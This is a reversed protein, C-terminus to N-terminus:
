YPQGGPLKAKPPEALSEKVGKEVDQSLEKRRRQEEERQLYWRARAEDQENLGYSINGAGGRGQKGVAGSGTSSGAARPAASYSHPQEGGAAGAEAPEATGDGLIHSRQADSFKGTESLEKPSYYNGAGGRGSHAYQQEERAMMDSLSSPQLSAEANAQNAELDQAVRANEADVAQINGAGGRGYAPM